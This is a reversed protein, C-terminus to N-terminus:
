IHILSLGWGPTEDLILHGDKITPAHTFLDKDWAVRDIDIEMIRLNPTAAAFHASMMSCLHGYFNHPAVNVEYANAAAAIKM